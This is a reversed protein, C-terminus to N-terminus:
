RREVLEQACALYAQAGSSAPDYTLVTQAYSPAESIRVSRPVASSFTLDPFHTRAEEAVQPALRTRGDYMTLIIGSIALKPNLHESVLDISGMLQGLGELAYYECQLPILIENVATLANITLLGLSPPCDVIVFDLREDQDAQETVYQNLATRLRSERGIESVLEIEAGALDVTAPAVKLDRLGPAPKVVDLLSKGSILVEYTGPTGPGHEVGLATSANGQPDMDVVLVRYGLLSLAGAINVASTTKGVGGKQNTVAVLRTQEMKQPEHETLGLARLTDARAPMGEPVLEDLSGPMVGTSAVSTPVQAASESPPGEPLAIVAEVPSSSAEQSSVLPGSGASEELHGITSNESDDTTPSQPWGLPSSVTERSVTEPTETGSTVKGSSTERSVDHPSGTDPSAPWGLGVATYAPSISCGMPPVVEWHKFRM